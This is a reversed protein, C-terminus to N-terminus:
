TDGLLGLERAVGKRRGKQRIKKVTDGKKKKKREM